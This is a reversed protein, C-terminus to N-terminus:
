NNTNAIPISLFPHMESLPHPTFTGDENAKYGQKFLTEQNEDVMLECIMPGKFNILKKENKLYDARSKLKLYKIGFSKSVKEFSPMTLNWKPHTGYYRAKLFEKQTHRIALYGRNNVILILVNIKDQFITQLDQINMLFSGDGIICIYKKFKNSKSSGITEALGTGMSSISSSCIVRDNKKIVSSQFGSYLATGGGDVIICKSGIIKSTLNRVVENSNPYNTKKQEYWNQDKYAKYNGWVNKYSSKRKNLTMLFKGVDSHIKLDFNVNLNNLQDKDINVIIKKAKPAYDKFLTTTHPISLHTGLCIILDSSFVAKNAGRQGSMGIIGLNQPHNSHFIDASNWTTVFPLKSENIFKRLNNKAEESTRIGHGIVFIPKISKNFLSDFQKLNIKNKINKTKKRNKSKEFKIDSWQLELPLDIWVPGPRGEKAINIAKRLEYLFDKKNKIFKAYKTLPKVIDCINVEQTGVQRVKKGYSTHKSRSQGSIFICPISDQWAALLGTMANTCAPGTTVVVCGINESCKANAVAALSATQEHHTYTVKIKSKEISDFIHVVAGGQLGFVNKILNEKLIKALADTLKM